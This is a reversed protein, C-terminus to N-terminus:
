LLDELSEIKKDSKGLGGLGGTRRYGKHGGGLKPMKIGEKKFYNRTIYLVYVITTVIILVALMTVINDFTIPHQEDIDQSIPPYADAYEISQNTNEGETQKQEILEIQTQTLNQTDNQQPQDQVPRPARLETIEKISEISRRRQDAARAPEIAIQAEKQAGEVSAVDYTIQGSYLIYSQKVFDSNQMRQTQEIIKQMVDLYYNLLEVETKSEIVQEDVAKQVLSNLEHKITQYKIMDSILSDGNKELAYQCVETKRCAERCEDPSSCKTNNIGFLLDYKAEYIFRSSNFKLIEEKIKANVESINKKQNEIQSYRTTLISEIKQNDRIFDATYSANQKQLLILFSPTQDITLIVYENGDSAIFNDYATITNIDIIPSVLQHIAETKLSTQVSQSFISSLLLFISIFAFKLGKM